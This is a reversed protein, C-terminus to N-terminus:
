LSYFLAALEVAEIRQRKLEMNNLASSKRKLAQTKQIKNGLTQPCQSHRKLASRTCASPPLEQTDINFQAFDPKQQGSNDIGLMMM